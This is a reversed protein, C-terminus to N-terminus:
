KSSLGEADLLEQRADRLKQLLWLRKDDLRNALNTDGAAKAKVLRITIDTVESDIEKIKKKVNERRKREEDLSKESRAEFKIRTGKGGFMGIIKLVLSILWGFSM